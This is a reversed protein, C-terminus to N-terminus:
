ASLESEFEAPAPVFVGPEGRLVDGPGPAGPAPPPVPIRVDLAEMKEMRARVEAPLAKREEATEVPGSFVVDGKPNRATLQKKGDKFSVELRGTGDDFVMRADNGGFRAVRMESSHSHSSSGGSGVPGPRVARLSVAPREEDFRMITRTGPVFKGPLPPMLKKTLKVTVTQKKGARFLTLKVEDGEKKSRVLVGLQRPEILIQDDFRTILDLPKLVAAAPSDPAIQVVVLGTEPPLEMQAALAADVSHTSIGLFTEEKLAPPAPMEVPAEGHITVVKAPQQAALVGPLLLGLVMGATKVVACRNENKTKM